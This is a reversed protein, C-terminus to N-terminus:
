SSRRAARSGSVSSLNDIVDGIVQDKDALSNTLDAITGFLTQLAGGEGQLTEILAVSLQNLQDADLGQVLSKFGGFLVTLDVAPHTRSRPITSGPKLVANAIGPGQEVDLYRQGVLNRYRMNVNALQPM